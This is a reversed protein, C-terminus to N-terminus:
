ILVTILQAPFGQVGIGINCLSTQLSAAKGQEPGAVSLM